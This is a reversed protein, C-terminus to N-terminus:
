TLDPGVQKVAIYQLKFIPQLHKGEAQLYVEPRVFDNLQHRLETPSFSAVVGLINEQLHDELHHINNHVKDKLTGQESKTLAFVVVRKKNDQPWCFEM